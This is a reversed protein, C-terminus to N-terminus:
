AQPNDFYRAKPDPSESLVIKRAEAYDKIDKDTMLARTAADLEEGANMSNENGKGESHESFDVATPLGTLFEEFAELNTKEGEGFKVKETLGEAFAIM